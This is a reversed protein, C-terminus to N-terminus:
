VQGCKCFNETIEMRQMWYVYEMQFSNLLFNSENILTCFACVQATKYANENLFYLAALNSCVIRATLNYNQCKPNKKM